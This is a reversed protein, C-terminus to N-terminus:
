KWVRRWAMWILGSEQVPELRCLLRIAAEDVVDGQCLCIRRDLGADMQDGFLERRLLRGAALEHSGLPMGHRLLVLQTGYYSGFGAM